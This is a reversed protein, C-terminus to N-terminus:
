GTKKKLIKSILTTFFNENGKQSILRLLFLRSKRKKIYREVIIVDGRCTSVPFSLKLEWPLYKSTFKTPEV